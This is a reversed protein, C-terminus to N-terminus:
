IIGNEKLNKKLNEMKKLCSVGFIFGMTALSMGMIGFVFGLVEM